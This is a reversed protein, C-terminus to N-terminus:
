SDLPFLIDSILLMNSGAESEIQKVGDTRSMALYKTM